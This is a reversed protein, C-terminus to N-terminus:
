SLNYNNKTDKSRLYKNKCDLKIASKLEIKTCTVEASVMIVSNTSSYRCFVVPPNKIQYTIRYM